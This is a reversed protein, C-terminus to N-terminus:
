AEVLPRVEVVGYRAVPHRGAYELAEDLDKCNLIYVGGIQEKTQSYPGNGIQVKGDQTRATKANMSPQPVAVFEWIGRQELEKRFAGIKQREATWEQDSLNAWAGENHYAFFMYRM